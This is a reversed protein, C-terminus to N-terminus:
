DEDELHQQKQEQKRKMNEMFKGGVKVKLIIFGILALIILAWGYWEM